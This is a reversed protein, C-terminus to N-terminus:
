TKRRVARRVAKLPDEGYPKRRTWRRACAEFADMSSQRPNEDDSSSQPVEKQFTMDGKPNEDDARRVAKFSEHSQALWKTTLKARRAAKSLQGKEYVLFFATLKGVNHM